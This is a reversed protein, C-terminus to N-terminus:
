DAEDPSQSDEVSRPPRADALAPYRIFMRFAVLAAAAMIVAAVTLARSISSSAAIPAILIGALVVGAQNTLSATSLLTAREATTAGSHLIQQLFPLNFGNVVYIAAFVAIAMAVSVSAGFLYIAVALISLAVGAVLAPNTRNDEPVRSALGAGIISAASLGAVMFGFLRVSETTSDLLASLMPQYLIEVAALGIGWLLTTILLLRLPGRGVGIRIARGITSPIGRIQTVVSTRRSSESVLSWVAILLVGAMVASLFAPLRLVSVIPGDAPLGPLFSLASVTLAGVGIGLAQAAGARALDPRIAFSPDIEHISDVFWAELPGSSLARGIGGIVSAVMFAAFGQALLWTTSMVMVLAAAAVLVPRRGGEDALGGTPLEFIATTAGYTAFVLGIQGLDLGRRQLTVVLVPM